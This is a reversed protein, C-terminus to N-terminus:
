PELGDLLNKMLGKETPNVALEMARQFNTRASETRGAHADCGGLMYFGMWAQDPKMALFEKADKTAEDCRNLFLFAQGREQLGRARRNALEGMRSKDKRDGWVNRQRRNYETTLKELAVSNLHLAQSLDAVAQDLEGQLRKAIGRHIFAEEFSPDRGIASDFFQIANAHNGLNALADGLHRFEEATNAEFLSKASYREGLVQARQNLMPAESVRGEGQAEYSSLLFLYHLKSAISLETAKQSVQVAVGLGQELLQIAAARFRRKKTGLVTQAFALYVMPDRKASPSMRFYQEVLQLTDMTVLGVLVRRFEDHTVRIFGDDHVAKVGAGNLGEKLFIRDPWPDAIYVYGARRDVRAVTTYHHTVRDSLLVGDGPAAMCLLVDKAASIVSSDDSQREDSKFAFSLWEVRDGRLTEQLNNRMDSLSTKPMERPNDGGGAYPMGQLVQSSLVINKGVAELEASRAREIPCPAGHTGASIIMAIFAIRLRSYRPIM